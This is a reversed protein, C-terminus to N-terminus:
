TRIFTATADVSGGISSGDAPPGAEPADVRCSCAGEFGDPAGRVELKLYEASTAFAPSGSEASTEIVADVIAGARRAAFAAKGREAISQVVAAREVAVREPVKPRMDFARTGPRPSFTFAHVWAPEIRELLDVTDAFDDDGEGPFGLIIDAGIFPDGRAARAADAARLVADRRYRRGMAALVRDSGSQVSLHLHPRVRPLSFAAMFREDARDPEYSSLRYAIRETGAVLAELLGPFDLGGSRYQSLNVGTLVIEPVGRSELALARRLVEDPGLSVSRGRALCVRCYACRNDCGDQVKLQPRSHFLADGPVFAFPDAERGSALAALRRLEDLPDLGELRAAVLGEAMSALAGKRSGPVVVCRPAVAAVAEPELEAYCGTVVAVAEPNRRLALRMERRAKQEAKSTVTCTNFVVLDAPEGPGVVAAGAASFGDAIAETEAQNLKCGFTRFSVRLQRVSPM